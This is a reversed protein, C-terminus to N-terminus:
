LFNVNPSSKGQSWLEKSWLGLFWIKLSKWIKLNELFWPLYWIKTMARKKPWCIRCKQSDAHERIVLLQKKQQFFSLFSPEFCGGIKCFSPFFPCWLSLTYILFLFFFCELLQTSNKLEREASIQANRIDIKWLKEVTKRIGEPMLLWNDGQMICLSLNYFFVQM